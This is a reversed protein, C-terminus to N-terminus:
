LQTCKSCYLECSATSYLLSVISIRKLLTGCCGNTKCPLVADIEEGTNSLVISCNSAIVARIYHQSGINFKMQFPKINVSGCFSCYIRGTSACITFYKEKQDRCYFVHTPNFSVKKFRGKGFNLCHGCEICVVALNGTNCKDQKQHFSDNIHVPISFFPTLLSHALVRTYLEHSIFTKLEINAPLVVSKSTIMSEFVLSMIMSEFPNGCPVSQAHDKLADIFKAESSSETPILKPYFTDSREMVRHPAPVCLPFSTQFVQRPKKKLEILLPLINNNSRVLPFTLKPLHIVEFFEIAAAYFPLTLLKTWLVQSDMNKFIARIDTCTLPIKTLIVLVYLLFFCQMLILSDNLSVWNNESIGAAGYMCNIFDAMNHCTDLLDVWKPCDEPLWYKNSYTVFLHFERYNIQLIKCIKEVIGCAKLSWVSCPGACLSNCIQDYIKPFSLCAM